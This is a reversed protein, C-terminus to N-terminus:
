RNMGLVAVVVWMLVLATMTIGYRVGEGPTRRGGDVGVGSDPPKENDPV